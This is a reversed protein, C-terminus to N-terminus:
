AASSMARRRRTPLSVIGSFLSLTLALSLPLHSRSGSFMEEALLAPHNGDYGTWSFLGITCILLVSLSLSLSAPIRWAVQGDAREARLVLYLLLGAWVFMTAPLLGSGLRLTASYPWDVRVSRDSMSRTLAISWLSARWAPYLLSWMMSFLLPVGCARARGYVAVGVAWMVQRWYWGAPRGAGAELLDGALERGYSGPVLRELLWSAVAVRRGERM